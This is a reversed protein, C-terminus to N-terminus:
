GYDRKDESVLGDNPLSGVPVIEVNARLRIIERFSTSLIDAEAAEAECQVVLCDSDGDRTVTAKAREVGPNARVFSAIQEPRVFMGKVKTAQDARGLWGAIRMNTRGCDSPGTLTKSMDGTAFRILPYETDLLTVVVEGVEGDAVPDGTGPRVIELIVDEDVVMGNLAPTQYAVLGLEATAYCEYVAIGQAQYFERLAPFLAGGSVGATKFGLSLGLEDAKELISKLYDPTGLYVNAGLDHAVRVQMETQGIGAPFVAAGLKRAAADLMLGAPTFHYSFCNQAIDGRSVGIAHLFRELRKSIGEATVAEYIPGPSQYINAFDSVDCTALGGFPSHATQMEVLTSKRLVPLGALAERDSIGEVDCDAFHQAYAPSQAKAHALVARLASFQDAQRTAADRTEKDDYHM